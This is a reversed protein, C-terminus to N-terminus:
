RRTRHRELGALLADLGLAFEREPDRRPLGRAMERVRPFAAPDLREYAPDSEEEPQVPGYCALTHGVVFAVVVQLVATARAPAFGAERLVALVEEVSHLSRTTVAPRTAFLPIAHPHACLVARLARARERVAAQWPTRRRLRPLEALIAEFIGDLVAAKSPVRNYLSMAEVGLAAGLRRMSVAALGERDVLALAAALIRERSLPTRPPESM